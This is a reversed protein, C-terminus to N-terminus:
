EANSVDLLGMFFFQLLMWHSSSPINFDDEATWAESGTIQPWTEM